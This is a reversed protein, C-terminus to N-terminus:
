GYVAGTAWADGEGGLSVEKRVKDWLVDSDHFAFKLNGLWLLTSSHFFLPQFVLRFGYIQISDLWPSMVAVNVLTMGTPLPFRNGPPSPHDLVGCLKALDGALLVSTSTGASDKFVLLTM